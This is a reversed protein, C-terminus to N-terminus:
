LQKEGKLSEFLKVNKTQIKKEEREEVHGKAQYALCFLRLPELIMYLM